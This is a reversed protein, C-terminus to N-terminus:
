GGINEAIAEVILIVIVLILLGILGGVGFSIIALIITIVWFAVSEEPDVDKDLIEHEIIQVGDANLDCDPEWRLGVNVWFDADVDISGLIADIVTM